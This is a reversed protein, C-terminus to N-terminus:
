ASPSVFDVCETGARLLTELHDTRLGTTEADLRDAVATAVSPPVNGDDRGYWVGVPVGPDQVSWSESLLSLERAPWRGGRATALLVDEAMTEVPDVGDPVPLSAPDADTLLSLASDPKRSVIRRQLGFLGRLLVPAHRGFLELADTPATDPPGAPAVLAVREAGSAEGVALAFPAGASFGLVGFSEVDLADTLEVVDARWADFSLEPNPDSGGIGPRDPAIICLPLDELLAASRRSGPTGHCFVVPPGDPDGHTEYALTRGDSLTLSEM